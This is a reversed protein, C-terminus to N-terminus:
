ITNKGGLTRSCFTLEEVTRLTAHEESCTAKESVLLPDPVTILNAKILLELMSSFHVLSSPSCQLSPHQVRQLAAKPQQPSLRAHGPQNLLHGIVSVHITVSPQIYVVHKGQKQMEFDLGCGESILSFHEM